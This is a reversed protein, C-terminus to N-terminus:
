DRWTVAAGGAFLQPLLAVLAALTGTLLGGVLLAVNELMVLGALRAARFGVARLLGLERRRELVNRAQVAALGFTGLLLGLAGLSQFTSLYTNQVALLDALRRQAPVADFGQDSLREELVAAVEEARPPRADHSM